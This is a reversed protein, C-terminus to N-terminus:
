PSPTGGHYILVLNSPDGSLELNSQALAVRLQSPDGVYHILIHAM